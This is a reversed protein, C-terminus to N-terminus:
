TQGALVAEGLECLLSQLCDARTPGMVDSNKDAAGGSPSRSSVKDSAM